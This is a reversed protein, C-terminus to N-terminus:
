LEGTRTEFLLLQQPEPDFKGPLAPSDIVAAHPNHGQAVVFHRARKVQAGLKRLDDLGVRRYRRAKLLRNVNRVGL